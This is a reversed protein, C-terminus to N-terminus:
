GEFYIICPPDHTPVDIGDGQFHREYYIRVLIQVGCLVQDGVISMM